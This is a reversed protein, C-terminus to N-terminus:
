ALGRQRLRIQQEEPSLLALETPTLGQSAINGPAQTQPQLIQASPMPQIPLPPANVTTAPQIYDSLKVNFEDNLNLLSIDIAIKDILGNVKTELNYIKVLEKSYNELGAFLIPEGKFIISHNKVAFLYAFRDIAIILDYKRNQLQVKYLDSLEKIYDRSYIQKSDMYLIDTNIQSYSYFVDEINKIMQDSKSFGKHYSNLILINREANAELSVLTFLLFISIFIFKM